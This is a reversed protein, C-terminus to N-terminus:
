WIKHLASHWVHLPLGSQQRCLRGRSMDTHISLTAALGPMRDDGPTQRFAVKLWGAM